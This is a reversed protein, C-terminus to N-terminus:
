AFIGKHDAAGMPELGSCEPGFGLLVCVGLFGEPVPPHVVEQAGAQAGESGVRVCEKRQQLRM